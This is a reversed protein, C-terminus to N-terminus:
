LSNILIFSPIFQSCIKFIFLYRFFDRIPTLSVTMRVASRLSCVIWRSVPLYGQTQLSWPQVWVWTEDPGPLDWSSQSSCGFSKGEWRPWVRDQTVGPSKGMEWLGRQGAGPFSLYVCSCGPESDPSFAKEQLGVSRKQRSLLGAQGKGNGSCGLGLGQCVGVVAFASDDSVAWSDPPWQSSARSYIHLNCCCIAYGMRRALVERHFVLWSRCFTLQCPLFMKWRTKSIAIWGTKLIIKM